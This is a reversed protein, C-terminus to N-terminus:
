CQIGKKKKVRIRLLQLAGSAPNAPSGRQVIYVENTLKNDSYGIKRRERDKKWYEKRLPVTLLWCSDMEWPLVGLTAKLTM